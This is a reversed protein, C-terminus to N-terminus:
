SVMVLLRAAFTKWSRPCGQGRTGPRPFPERPCPQGREKPQPEAQSRRAIDPAQTSITGDSPLHTLRRLLQATEDKEQSSIRVIVSVAADDPDNNLLRSGPRESISGNPVNVRFRDFVVRFAPFRLFRCPV